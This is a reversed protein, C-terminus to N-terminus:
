VTFLILFPVCEPYTASASIRLPDPAIMVIAEIILLPRSLHIQFLFLGAGAVFPFDPVTLM